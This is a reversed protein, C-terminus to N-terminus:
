RKIIQNKDQAKVFLPSFSLFTSMLFLLLIEFHFSNASLSIFKIKNDGYYDFYYFYEDIWEKFGETGFDSFYSFLNGFIYFFSILYFGAAILKRATFKIKEKDSHDNLRSFLLLMCCHWIFVLPLARSVFEVFYILKDNNLFYFDSQFRFFAYLWIFLSLGIKLWRNHSVNPAAKIFVFFGVISLGLLILFNIM